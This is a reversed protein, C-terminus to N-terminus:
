HLAAVAISAAVAVEVPQSPLVLVGTSGLALTVSHGVTFSTAVLALQRVASRAPRVADWRGARVGVPAVIVLLLLFLLPDTGEAIHLAGAKFLAWTSSGARAQGLAIPLSSKGHSLEGLLLPPQGAFGGAWDNRLFVQVRHTRVEHIIADY